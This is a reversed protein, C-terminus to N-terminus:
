NPRSVEYTGKDDTFTLTVSRHQGDVTVTCDFSTGSEVKQGDPCAVDDVQTAGYSQTLVKAVGAEAAASDLTKSGLSTAVVVGIIGLIVVVALAGLGIFLPKKSKPQQPGAAPQGWQQGPQAQGWPQGGQPQQGWQQQAQGPQSQGWQGPQQQGAQGWQQQGAAGQGWQQGPQAQGAQPQQGWQQQAQGPQQGWQQQGAAGTGPQGWQQQGGQPQQGWQQGAQGWQQQAQGGQPGAGTGQGPQQGWQQAQGAASADFAQTPTAGQAASGPPAWQQTPEQGAANGSQDQPENPGSM